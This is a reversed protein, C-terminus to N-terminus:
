QNTAMYTAAFLMVDSEVQSSSSPRRLGYLTAAEKAADILAKKAGGCAADLFAAFAGDAIVLQDGDVALAGLEVADALAGLRESAQPTLDTPGAIGALAMAAPQADSPLTGLHAAAMARRAQHAAEMDDVWRTVDDVDSRRAHGSTLKPIGSEAAQLALREQFDVPLFAIRDKLDTVRADAAPVFADGDPYAGHAFFPHEAKGAVTMLARHIADLQPLSLAVGSERARKLTPVGSPWADALLEGHGAEVLETVSRTIWETREALDDVPAEPAAVPLPAAAGASVYPRHLDRRKRWTRVTDITAFMERGATIDVSLVDCRGQAAPAHFVLAEAQDVVPMADLEGTAPDFVYSAAAYLALQVAIEGMAYGVDKGTKLDAIVLRGDATRVIRDLTGAVQLRPIVVVKEIWEPLITLGADHVARTYAAIDADYPEPITVREGRDVKESFTHLATGINAGAMAGAHDKAEAMLSDLTRKDAPDAAAIALLLDQRQALGIGGMRLMWKTLGFTDSVAKAFTTARTYPMQEGTAPDPILYRGYRDRPPDVHATTTATDTM